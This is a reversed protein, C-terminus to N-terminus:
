AARRGHDILVKINSGAAAAQILAPADELPGRKTILPTV